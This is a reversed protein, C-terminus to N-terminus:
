EALNEFNEFTSVTKNQNPLLCRGKFQYFSVKQKLDSQFKFDFAFFKLSFQLLSQDKIRVLIESLEHLLLSIEKEYKKALISRLDDKKPALGYIYSFDFTMREPNTTKLFLKSFYRILHCYLM